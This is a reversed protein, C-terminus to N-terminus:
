SCKGAMLPYSTSLLNIVDVLLAPAAPGPFLDSGGARGGGGGAMVLKYVGGEGCGGYGHAGKRLAASFRDKPWHRTRVM